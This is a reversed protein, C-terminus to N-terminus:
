ENTPWLALVHGGPDGASVSKNPAMQCAREGVGAPDNGADTMARNLFPFLPPEPQPEPEIAFDIRGIQVRQRRHLSRRGFNEM